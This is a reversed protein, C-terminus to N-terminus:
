QEFYEFLYDPNYEVDFQKLLGIYEDKFTLSSHHSEQNMIYKIINNVDSHSYSFGGYGEQWNFKGPLWHNENIFKSSSSKIDRVLDPLAQVPNYGIFIHIHDKLNNIALLKHKRNQIIGTCYKHLEEKHKVPIINERGFPSFVLQIYIRTYANAM